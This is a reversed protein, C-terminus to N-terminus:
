WGRNQGSEGTRSLERCADARHLAGAVFCSECRAASRDRTEGFRCMGIACDLPRRLPRGCYTPPPVFAITQSTCTEACALHADSATRLGRHIVRTGRSGTQSPRYSDSSNTRSGQLPRSSTGRVRPL